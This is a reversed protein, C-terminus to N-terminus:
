RKMEMTTESGPERWYGGGLLPLCDAYGREVVLQDPKIASGDHYAVAGFACSGRLLQAVGATKATLESEPDSPNRM